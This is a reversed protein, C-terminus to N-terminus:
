PRSVRVTRAPLRTSKGRRLEFNVSKLAQIAGFSKSVNAIKLIVDDTM